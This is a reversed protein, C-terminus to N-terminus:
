LYICLYNYLYISGPPLPPTDHPPVISSSLGMSLGDNPARIVILRSNEYSGLDEERLLSQFAVDNSCEYDNVQLIPIPKIRDDYMTSKM